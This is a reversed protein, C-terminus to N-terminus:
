ARGSSRTLRAYDILLEEAFLRPNLPHGAMRRAEALKRYYRHLAAVDFAAASSVVAKARGPYYRATGGTQRVYLLDAVWRMLWLALNENGAKDVKEALALPDLPAGSAALADILTDREASHIDETSARLAALPAGGAEALRQEPRDVGQETLWAVSAAAGPASVLFKAARSRITPLVQDPHGTVLLFVTGPAPEELTKLLANSAPVNLADAPYVLVVRAGGRHTGTNFFSDLRRIQDIKIEKSPTKTKASKEVAIDGDGEAGADDPQLIEPLVARFDPHNRETFWGCAPCAGCPHGQGAPNECLLSQAFHEAFERKGIDPAGHFLLAHPLRARNAQMRAWDKEQWKYKLLKM